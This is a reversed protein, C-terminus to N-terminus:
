AFTPFAAIAAAIDAHAKYLADPAATGGTIFCAIILPATAQAPWAIAVDNVSGHGGTGTKDGVRWDKPLGARLRASGTTSAILWDTLRTRSAPSLVDGLLVREFSAAMAVPTTTDRRDGPIATSMMPEIRDLQTVTDGIRRLFATFGAPGGVTALLKNAATNESITVIAEALEAVSASGGAHRASAASNSVIDAAAIPIARDLSERGADVRALIVAALLAKFTSAMPFREDGRYSFRRNSTIDHVALGIRGGTAREAARVISTLDPLPRAVARGALVAFPLSTLLTRRALMASFM